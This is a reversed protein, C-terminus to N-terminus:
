IGFQNRMQQFIHANHARQVFDEFTMGPQKLGAEEIANWMPKLEALIEDGTLNPYGKSNLHALMVDKIKTKLENPEM